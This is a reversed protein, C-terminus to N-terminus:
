RATSGAPGSAQSNNPTTEMLLYNISVCHRDQLLLFACENLTSALHSFSGAAVAAAPVEEENANRGDVPGRM